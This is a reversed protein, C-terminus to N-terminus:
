RPKRGSAYFGLAVGHVDSRKAWARAASWCARADEPALLDAAVPRADPALFMEVWAPAGVDATTVPLVATQVDAAGAEHLLRAVRRGLHPDGGRRRATADLADRLAPWGGPEPDLVMVGDDADVALVVGGPRLVRLAEAIAAAPDPLHRLVLRLLVLDFTGSPVPLAAADGQFARIRIAGGPAPPGAGPGAGAAGARRAHEVERDVGAALAPPFDAAVRALFAGPGCGVDLIRLGARLGLRVLVERERVWLDAVQRRLRDAEAAASRGAVHDYSGPTPAAPEPSV